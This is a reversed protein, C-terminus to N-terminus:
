YKKEENKKRDKRGPSRVIRSESLPNIWETKEEFSNVSEFTPVDFLQAHCKGPRQLINDSFVSKLSETNKLTHWWGMRRGGMRRGGIEWASDDEESM